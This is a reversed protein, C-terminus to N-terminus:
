WDGGTARELAGAASTGSCSHGGDKVVARRMTVVTRSVLTRTLSEVRVDVVSPDAAHALPAALSMVALAGAISGITRRPMCCGREALAYHSTRDPGPRRARPGVGRAKGPPPAEWHSCPAAARATLTM